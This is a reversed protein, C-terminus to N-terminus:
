CTGSPCDTFIVSFNEWKIRGPSVECSSPHGAHERNSLEYPMCPATGLGRSLELFDSTGLSTHTGKNPTVM